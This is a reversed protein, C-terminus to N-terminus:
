TTKLYTKIATPSGATQMATTTTNASRFAKYEARFSAPNGSSNKGIPVCTNYM